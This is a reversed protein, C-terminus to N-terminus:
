NKAMFAYGQIKCSAWNFWHYYYDPMLIHLFHNKIMLINYTIKFLYTHIWPENKCSPSSFDSSDLSFLSSESFFCSLCFSIFDRSALFFLSSISIAMLCLVIFRMQALALVSNTLLSILFSKLAPIFTLSRLIPYDFYHFVTLGAWTTM